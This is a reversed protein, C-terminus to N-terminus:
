LAIRYLNSDYRNIFFLQNDVLSLRFADIIPEAGAYIAEFNNKKLNMAYIIDEFYIARKLYDDPLIPEKISNNSQPVACFIKEESAILCKEPLTSFDFNALLTGQADTLDLRSDRKQDVSFKIALSGDTSWNTMLGLGSFLIEITKNKINIAWIDASFQSSLKPILLIKENALWKLDFDKQFLSLITSTKADVLNKTILDSKDNNTKLYAIKKNDPSFDAATIGAPLLEWIKEAANFINFQPSDAGGSKILVRSGDSDPKIQQPSEITQPSIIEDEDDQVKFIQGTQTIYFIETSTALGGEGLSRRIFYDFVPQDSIIKLNQGATTTLRQDNTTPQLGYTIPQLDAGPPTLIEQSKKWAFYVGIGIAAIGLVIGIIIITKKM